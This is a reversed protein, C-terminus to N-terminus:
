FLTTGRLSYSVMQGRKLGTEREKYMIQQIKGRKKLIEFDDVSDRKWVSQGWVYVTWRLGDTSYQIDRAM